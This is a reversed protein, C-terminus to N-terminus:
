EVFGLNRLIDVHKSNLSLDIKGQRFEEQAIEESSCKRGKVKINPKDGNELQYTRIAVFLIEEENFINKYNKKPLCNGM